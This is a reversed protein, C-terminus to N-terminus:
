VLRRRRLLLPLLVFSLGAASGGTSCDCAGGAIGGASDDDDGMLTADDDDGSTDDDGPTSDEDGAASDDDDGATSDDDDGVPVCDPDEPLLIGDCNTDVGDCIETAIPNVAANGDDCDPGACDASLYGDGDADRDDVFGSCDDDINNGCQDALLPSVTADNDNCDDCFTSGDGDADTDDPTGSCDEDLGDCIEVVGPHVNHATDDCDNGGCLANLYGDGDGDQVADAGSCDQDLGDSCIEVASPHRLGDLDDCDDCGISGDGDQDANDIAGDCDTDIGDCTDIGGPHVSGDQDGCDNGGCDIDQYGDGDDDDANDAGSCDTDLGDGCTDFAGPNVLPDLDACDGECNMFGDADADACTVEYRVAYQNTLGGSDCSFQLHGLGPAEIGITAHDAADDGNWEAVENYHIEFAASGEAFRVVFRATINNNAINEIGTWKVYFVRNPESGSTITRINDGGSDWDDWLPALTPASFAPLCSNTYPPAGGGFSIVGDQAVDLSTYSAGYFTVPFPLTVTAFGDNAVALNTGGSPYSYSPGGPENSDIWTYGFADPGGTAALASAPLLCALLVLRM